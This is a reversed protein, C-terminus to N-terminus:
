HSFWNSLADVSVDTVFFLKMAMLIVRYADGALPKKPSSSPKHKKEKPHEGVCAFVFEDAVPGDHSEKIDLV